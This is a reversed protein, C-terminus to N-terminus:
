RNWTVTIRQYQWGRVPDNGASTGTIKRPNSGDAGMAMVAWGKGNQDSLYYIFKGDPSWAPLADNGGNKTLQKQGSGDANIVYIEFDGDAQSWYAIKKGDPSVAPGGGSDSSLQRKGGGDPNIRFIGCKNNECTDYAIFGGNLSWNPRMGPTLQHNNSGDANVVYVWRQGGAVFYALRQGNPAWTPFSANGDHVFHLSTQKQLDWIYLGDTWHYFAFNNSDPSFAPESALDLIKFVDSGDGNMGWLSYDQLAPGKWATYVVFYSSLSAPKSTPKPATTATPPVSTNTPPPLPTDTPPPPLPTSTPAPPQTPPVIAGTPQSPKVLSVATATPQPPLPTATPEAPQPGAPAAESTPTYTATVVQVVPPVTFTATVVLIQPTPQTGCGALLSALGLSLVVFACTAVWRLRSGPCRHSKM